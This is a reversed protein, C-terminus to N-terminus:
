EAVHFFRSSMLRISDMIDQLLDKDFTGIAITTHYDENDKYKSRQKPTIIEADEININMQQLIQEANDQDDSIILYQKSHRHILRKERNNRILDLVLM